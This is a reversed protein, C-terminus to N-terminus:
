TRIALHQLETGLKKAFFYILIAEDVTYLHQQPPMGYEHKAETYVQQNFIECIELLHRPLNFERNKLTNTVKGLPDKIKTGPKITALLYKASNEVYDCARRVYDRTLNEFDSRGIFYVNCYNLAKRIGSQYIDTPKFDSLKIFGKEHQKLPSPQFFKKDLSLYSEIWNAPDEHYSKIVTAIANIEEETLYQKSLKKIDDGINLADLM